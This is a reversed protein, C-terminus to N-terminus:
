FSTVKDCLKMLIRILIFYIYLNIFLSILEFNQTLYTSLLTSIFYNFWLLIFSSIFFAVIFMLIHLVYELVEIPIYAFYIILEIVFVVFLSLIIGTIFSFTFDKNEFFGSKFPLIKTIFSIINKLLPLFSFFLVIVILIIIFITTINLLKERYELKPNHEYQKTALRLDNIEKKLNIFIPVYIGLIAILLTILLQVDFM